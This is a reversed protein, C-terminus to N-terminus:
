RCQERVNGDEMSLERLNHAKDLAILLDSPGSELASTGFVVHDPRVLVSKCGHRELWASILNGQESLARIQGQIGAGLSVLTVDHRSVLELDRSSPTWSPPVLLLFGHGLVDDLRRAGQDTAVLPQPFAMGTGSSVEGHQGQLLFGGVLPPILDQRVMEGKGTRMEELLKEDRAAAAVPDLECILRGLTKTRDIVARANPRRELDYSDLIAPDAGKAVVKIIKWALNGVDRLGQNLGQAMFPPTQHAADGAIFYRGARWHEAVLAHFRYTAARWVSGQGRKLWRSLLQWIREESVMEEPVEGPLLMIEWRRLDGPGRVFTAPRAPDCYQVTTAPLPVDDSVLADIVLWPEDFELDEFKLGMAERVPSWAGDCGVVYLARIDRTSGDAVCEITVLAEEDTQTFSVARWGLLAELHEHRDFSERLLRELEPQLFTSSPPWSLPFPEGQPLIRRLVEGSASRYESPRYGGMYPALADAIGIQQLLRLSEHDIGVARPKDYITPSMDVAIVSLGGQALLHAMVAGVPGLGVVVVDVRESM